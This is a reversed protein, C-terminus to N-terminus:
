GGPRRARVVGAVLIQGHEFRYLGVPAPLIDRMRAAEDVTVDLRRVHEDVASM